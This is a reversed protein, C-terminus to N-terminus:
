GVVARLTAEVHHAGRPTWAVLPEGDVEYTTGDLVVRSTATIPTCTEFTATVTTIAADRQEHDEVTSTQAVWARAPTETPSTWDLITNNYRDTSTTAELITVNRVLLDTLM